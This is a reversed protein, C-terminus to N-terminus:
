TRMAGPGSCSPKWGWFHSPTAVLASRTGWHVWNTAVVNVCGELLEAVISLSAAMSSQRDTGHLVFYQVWTASSRLAGLEAEAERRAAQEAWTM